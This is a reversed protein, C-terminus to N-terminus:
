VLGVPVCDVQRGLPVVTKGLYLVAGHGRPLPLRDLAAFPSLWDGRPTAAKKVEIPYLVGDLEILLDIERGDRDRYFYVAPRLGNFWWSKLVDVIAFTELMPGAMAGAQLTAATSWETLYSALGTDLFLLKPTKVLRQTVNSLYPRLLFVQFSAELISLWTRATGPSVDTDRALDAVNLLQGTRAAAARLFRLFTQQDGVQALDRVDRLLYTQLYSSYFLNRDSVAGTAVAPLSGMWIRDYMAAVGPAALLGQREAVRDAVPLFPPLGVGHGTSERQSFGLLDVIAVRGALSDAIGRMIEFQQSGTLWFAGPRRHEDIQMKLYPMLGPAYQIEDILVPPPFRELFLRPDV